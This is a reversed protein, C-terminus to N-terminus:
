SGTAAAAASAARELWRPTAGYRQPPILQGSACAEVLQTMRRDRTAEQKATLVWTVATRRYSPTAVEWFATAAPSGALQAAYAPPLERDRNEYAYVGSRDERRAEFAALGSPQMRGQATLREVHAINVASWNGGPRRPTWRQRRSDEDIRQSVSDIWGWCLAVPVADAWTLGRDAVHKKHLGMWLEPESDHHAALWAEFEEASAFFRAPREPTGGARGHETM